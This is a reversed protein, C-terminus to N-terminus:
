HLRALSFFLFGFSFPILQQQSEFLTNWLDESIGSSICFLSCWKPSCCMDVLDNWQQYFEVAIILPLLSFSLLTSQIPHENLFDAESVLDETTERRTEPPWGGTQPRCFDQSSALPHYCNTITTTTSTATELSNSSLNPLRCGNPIMTRPCLKITLRPNRPRETPPVLSSDIEWMSRNAIPLWSISLCPQVLTQALSQQVLSHQVLSHQVSPHQVLSHVSSFEAISAEIRLVVISPRKLSMRWRDLRWDPPGHKPFRCYYCM